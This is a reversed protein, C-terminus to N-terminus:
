ANVTIWGGVYSITYNPDVALDCTSPFLGQATGDAATSCTPQTTLSASTDGNAFASFSPTVPSVTGGVTLTESSATITLPARTVSVPGTAYVITYNSDVAGSCSSAYSGVPSSAPADMQCTPLTTLNAETDGNVFASYSATIAPATGGYEMTGGTATITLVPV